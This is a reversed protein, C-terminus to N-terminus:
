YLGLALLLIVISSNRYRAVIKDEQAKVIIELQDETYDKM